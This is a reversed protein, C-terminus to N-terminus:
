FSNVSLAFNKGVLLFSSLVASIMTVRQPSVASVIRAPLPLLQLLPVAVIVGLIFQTTRSISPWGNRWFQILALLAIAAEIPAFALTEVGGFALASTVAGLALVIGPLKTWDM